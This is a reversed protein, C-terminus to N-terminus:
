ETPSFAGSEDSGTTATEDADSIRLDIMSVGALRKFQDQNLTFVQERDNRKVFHKNDKELFQFNWNEEGTVELTVVGQTSFDPAKEAVGSVRFSSLSQSLSSAKDIDLDSKEKGEGPTSFQWKNETKIMEFDSGRIAKIGKVALLGKDMWDVTKSPFDYTNLELAYVNDEESIRVHVKKFSPSTGLYLEDVLKDDNFLQIKRQFKNEAVEFREHSNTTTTVPWTSKLTGLKKFISNLKGPNAPLNDLEPLAWDGESAILTIKDSSTSVVVKNVSAKNFTLLAKSEYISQSSQASIFLGIAMLLQLALFSSLWVRLKNM